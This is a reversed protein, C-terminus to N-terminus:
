ASVRVCCLGVHPALRARLGPAGTGELVGEVLDRNMGCVLETHEAALRDFPCNALCLEADALVPEYGYEGLVGATAALAGEETPPEAVGEREAYSSGIRRGVEHAVDQLVEAMPSGERLSRDVAAALVEGAVDYRREPLSVSLQRDSRRYLKAPRGAGPGTRGSLRRFEVDLLGADVLRDLHFKVTHLPLGVAEAAQERSVPEPQAAVHRYLARRVPEALLGVTDLQDALHDM